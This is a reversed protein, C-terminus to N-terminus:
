KASLLSQMTVITVQSTMSAGISVSVIVFLRHVSYAKRQNKNPRFRVLPERSTSKRLFHFKCITVQSTMFAGISGSVILFFRNVSYAIRQNKSPGFRVLLKGSVTLKSLLLIKRVKVKVETVKIFTM